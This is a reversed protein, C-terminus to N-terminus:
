DFGFLNVYFWPKCNRDFEDSEVQRTQSWEGHLGKSEFEHSRYAAAANEALLRTFKPFSHSLIGKLRFYISQGIVFTRTM